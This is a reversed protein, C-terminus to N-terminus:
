AHSTIGRKSEAKLFNILRQVEDGLAEKELEEIVEELRYGSLYIIKHAKKIKNRTEQSFNVRRLGVVNLGYVKCDEGKALMYPPIDKSVRTAASIMSIEGIRVFQHVVTYASLFSKDGVVVHGGLLSGNAIVINNGLRCNHGIHVFGMLFNDDGLITSSEEQTGRHITVYERIVNRKGIKLWTRKKKFALDQPLHGIVAGMHIETDEGIETFRLIHANALIKVRPCIKVNDEIITYPGIEADQAIEAAPNIIATPHILM